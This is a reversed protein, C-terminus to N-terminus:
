RFPLRPAIVKPINKEYSRQLNSYLFSKCTNRQYVLFYIQTQWLLQFKTTHLM